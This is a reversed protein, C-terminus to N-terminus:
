KKGNEKRRQNRDTEVREITHEVSAEGRAGIDVDELGCSYCERSSPKPDGCRICEDDWIELALGIKISVPKGM